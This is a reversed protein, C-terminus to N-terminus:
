IPFKRSDNMPNSVGREFTVWLQSLFNKELEHPSTQGPKLPLYTQGCVANHAQYPTVPRPLGAPSERCMVRYEITLSLNVSRDNRSVNIGLNRGVNCVKERGSGNRM